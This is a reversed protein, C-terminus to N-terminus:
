GRIGRRWLLAIGGAILFLPWWKGLMELATLAAGGYSVAAGVLAFIAAVFLAWLHREGRSFIISLVPILVWGAAFALMFIGGEDQGGVGAYPGVILLTGLGLGALIGGPIFFGSQRTAIGAIIFVLSMLPLVMLGLTEGFDVFQGILALVGIIILILGGVTAGARKEPQAKSSEDM